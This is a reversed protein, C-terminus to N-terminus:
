PRAGNRAPNPRSETSSWCSKGAMVAPSRQPPNASGTSARQPAHRKGAMVAPSRQPLGLGLVLPDRGREERGDRGPETAPPM